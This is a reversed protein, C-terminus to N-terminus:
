VSGPLLPNAMVGFHHRMSHPLDAISALILLAAKIGYASFFEAFVSVGYPVSLGATVNRGGLRLM